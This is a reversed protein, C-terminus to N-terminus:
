CSLCTSTSCKTISVSFKPSICSPSTTSPISPSLLSTTPWSISLCVLSARESITWSFRCNVQNWPSRGSPLLVRELLLLLVMRHVSLDLEMPIAVICKPWVSHSSLSSFNWVWFFFPLPSLWELWLSWDQMLNNKRVWLKFFYHRLELGCSIMQAIQNSSGIRLVM